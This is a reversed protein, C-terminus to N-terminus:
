PANTWNLDHKEGAIAKGSAEDYPFLLKKCCVQAGPSGYRPNCAISLRMGTFANCVGVVAKGNGRQLSEAVLFFIPPEFCQLKGTSLTDNGFKSGSTM